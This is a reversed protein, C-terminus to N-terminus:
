TQRTKAVLIKSKRRRLPLCPMRLAHQIFVHDSSYTTLDLCNKRDRHIGIHPSEGTMKEGGFRNRAESNEMKSTLVFKPIHCGSFSFSAICAAPLHTPRQVHEPRKKKLSIPLPNGSCWDPFVKPKLYCLNTSPKEIEFGKSRLTM